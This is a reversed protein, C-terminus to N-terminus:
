FLAFVDKITVVIMLGILLFFGITNVWGVVNQPLKKRTISEIALILIRGGDLAPFPFANLVALNLSLLAVFGILYSIGLDSAQSVQGVIGVPGSVADLSVKGTFLSGFGQIIGYTFNATAVLGHKISQFFPLRIEGVRDIGLGLGFRDSVVGEVPMMTFSKLNQDRLVVLYVEEEVRGSADVFLSFDELVEDDVIVTENATGYELVVDGAALGALGAPTEPVVNTIVLQSEDFTYGQPASSTSGPIGIMYSASLLIWALILNFLIGGFLVLFQRSRSTNSLSGSYDNDPVEDGEQPDFLKVFGGFPIWNITIKTGKWSGIQFMRPPYGFGFEDVRVKSLKAFIFHGLEHFFVLFSLVLIFLITSM